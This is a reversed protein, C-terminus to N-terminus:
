INREKLMQNYDDIIEPLRDPHPIRIRQGPKVFMTGKGIPKKMSEIKPYIITTFVKKTKSNFRETMKTQNQKHREM